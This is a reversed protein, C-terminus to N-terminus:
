DGYDRGGVGQAQRQVLDVGEGAPRRGRGYVEDDGDREAQQDRRAQERIGCIAAKIDVRRQERIEAARGGDLPRQQVRTGMGTDCQLRQMRRLHVVTLDKELRRLRTYRGEVRIGRTAWLGGRAGLM